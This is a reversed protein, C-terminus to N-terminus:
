SFIEPNRALNWLLTVDTTKWDIKRYRILFNGFIKFIKFIIWNQEINNLRTRVSSDGRFWDTSDTRKQKVVLHWNEHNRNTGISGFAPKRFTRFATDKQQSYPSSTFFCNGSHEDEFRNFGIKKFFDKKQLIKWARCSIYMKSRVESIWHFNTSFSDSSINRM